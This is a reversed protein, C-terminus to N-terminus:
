FEIIRMPGRVKLIIDSAKRFASYLYSFAKKNAKCLKETKLVFKIFNITYICKQSNSFIQFLRTLKLKTIM